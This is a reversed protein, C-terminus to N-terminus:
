HKEEEKEKEEGIREREQKLTRGQEQKYVSLTLYNCIFSHPLSCHLLADEYSSPRESTSVYPDV